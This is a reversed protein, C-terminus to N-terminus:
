SLVSINIDTQLYKEILLKNIKANQDYDCNLALDLSIEKSQVSNALIFKVINNKCQFQVNNIFRYEFVFSSGQELTNLMSVNTKFENLKSSANYVDLALLVSKQLKSFVPMFVILIAIMAVLVVLFELSIQGKKKNLRHM